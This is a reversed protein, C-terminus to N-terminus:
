GERERQKRMPQLRQNGRRESRCGVGVSVFPSPPLLLLLSATCCVCVFPWEYHRPAIMWVCVCVCFSEEEEAAKRAAVLRLFIVRDPQSFFFCGLWIFVPGFLISKKKAKGEKDPTDFYAFLFSFLNDESYFINFFIHRAFSISFNDVWRALGLM